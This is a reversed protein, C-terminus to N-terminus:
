AREPCSARSCGSRRDEDQEERVEVRRDDEIRDVQRLVQLLLAAENGAHLRARLRGLVDVVDDRLDRQRAREEQRRHRQQRDPDRRASAVHREVEAARRQQDDDADRQIRDLLHVLVQQQPLVVAEHLLAPDPEAAPLSRRAAELDAALRQRDSPARSCPSAPRNGPSVDPRSEISADDM